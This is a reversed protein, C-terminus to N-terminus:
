KEWKAKYLYKEMRTGMGSISNCDFEFNFEIKYYEQEYCIWSIVVFNQVHWSLKVTTVHAFNQQSWNIM